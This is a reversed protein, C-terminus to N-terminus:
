DTVNGSIITGTGSDSIPTPTDFFANDKIVNGDDTPSQILVGTTQNGIVNERIENEDNDFVALFPIDITLRVGVAGNNTIVNRKVVNRDANGQLSVGVVNSHIFNRTVENESVNQGLLVGPGNTTGTVANKEIENDHAGNRVLVGFFFNLNLSNEKVKNKQADPGVLTIGRCNNVAAVGKITTRGSNIVEIGTPRVGPPTTACTFQPLRNNAVTVGKVTHEGGGIIRIGKDFQKVVGPGKVTVGTRGVIKIGVSDVTNSGDVIQGNLHVTVGDAGVIIGDGPCNLLSDDLVTDAVITDGCAVHSAQAPQTWLSLVLPLALSGFLKSGNWRKM